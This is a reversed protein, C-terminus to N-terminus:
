NRGGKRCGLEHIAFLENWVMLFQHLKLRKLFMRFLSIRSVRMCLIMYKVSWNWNHQQIQMPLVILTRASFKMTAGYAKDQRQMEIDLATTSHTNLWTVDTNLICFLTNKFTNSSLYWYQTMKTRGTKSATSKNSKVAWYRSRSV